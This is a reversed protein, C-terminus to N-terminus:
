VEKVNEPVEAVALILYDGHRWCERFAHRAESENRCYFTDHVIKKNELNMFMVAFTKYM